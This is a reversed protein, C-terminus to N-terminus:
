HELNKMKVDFEQRLGNFCEFGFDEKQKIQALEFEKYDLLTKLRTIECQLNLLADDDFSRM